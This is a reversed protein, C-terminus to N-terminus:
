VDTLILRESALISEQFNVFYFNEQQCIKEFKQRGLTVTQDECKSFCIYVKNADSILSSFFLVEDDPHAVVILVKDKLKNNKKLKM